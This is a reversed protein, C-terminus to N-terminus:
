HQHLKCFLLFPLSAGLTPKIHLPSVPANKHFAPQHKREHEKRKKKHAGNLNKTTNYISKKNIKKPKTAQKHEIPKETGETKRKIGLQITTTIAVVTSQNKRWRPSSRMCVWVWEREKWRRRMEWFIQCWRQTHTHTHSLSLSLSFVFMTDKILFLLLHM